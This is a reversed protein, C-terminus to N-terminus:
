RARPSWRGGGHAHDQVRATEELQIAGELSPEGFFFAFLGALLGALLGAALGRRLYPAVM